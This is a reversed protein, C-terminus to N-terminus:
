SRRAAAIDQKRIRGGVGTGTVSALDVGQEAAFQRVLPSVYSGNTEAQAAIVARKRVVAQETAIVKEARRDQPKTMVVHWLKLVVTLVLGVIVAVTLVVILADM